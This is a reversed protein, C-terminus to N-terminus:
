AHIINQAPPGEILLRLSEKDLDVGLGEGSVVRQVEEDKFLAVLYRRSEDNALEEPVKGDKLLEVAEPEDALYDALLPWRSKLITWLALRERPQKLDTSHGGIIQLAREVGYANVLRKMARPNPELLPAFRALTHETAQVLEPTSLKRVAVARAARRRAASGQSVRDLVSFTAEETQAGEFEQALEAELAATQEPEASPLILSRWFEEREVLSLRPVSTSLQFTKELFLHGLPRGPDRGDRSHEPYVEEYSSYLWQRDAAVVFTVPPERLVTQIGELLDVVYPARCRDLDDVFVAVPKHISRVLSCFRRQLKNMPDSAQRIFDEAGSRSSFAGGMGRLANIGAALTTAATAVVTILAAGGPVDEKRAILIAGAFLVLAALLGVIRWSAIRARWAMARLWLRVKEPLSAQRMAERNVEAILLWWPAGVRQHQWANFQVVLWGQATLYSSLFRLLSTKGSGWPGELHLVFSDPEARLQHAEKADASRRQEDILRAGLAEAFAKRGLNDVDSPQDSLTPVADPRHLSRGRGSLIQELGTIEAEVANLFGDEELQGRLGRELLALGVVAKRSDIETEPVYLTRLDDLWEAAPRTRPATPLQVAFSGARGGAWGANVSLLNQTLSYADVPEDLVALLRRIEDSVDELGDEDPPPPAPDRQPAQKVPPAQKTDPRAADADLVRDLVDLVEPTLEGDSGPINHESLVRIVAERTAPGYIGDAVHRGYGHETLRQQLRRVVKEDAQPEAAM